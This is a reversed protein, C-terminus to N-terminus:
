AGTDPAAPNAEPEDTAAGSVLPTELLRSVFDVFRRGDSNGPRQDDAYMAEIMSQLLSNPEAFQSATALSDQLDRIFHGVPALSGALDQAGTEPRYAVSARQIEVRTLNLAFGSIQEKDYGLSLANNFATELDGTFFEDALQNVQGLLSDLAAREEDNIDGEVSIRYESSSVSAQAFGAGSDNQYWSASDGRSSAAEITIVDGERTRVEFNFSQASAYEYRANIASGPPPASWVPEDSQSLGFKGALDEVGGTVLDYTKGIDKAVAPSLQGLAELQEKAENFGKKFGALGAELRSQLAAKDAGAALDRELQREIFGLINGAAQEATLPKFGAPKEAGGPMNAEARQQLLEQPKISVPNGQSRLASHVSTLDTLTKGLM